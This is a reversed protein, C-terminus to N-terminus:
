WAGIWDLFLLAAALVAYLGAAWGIWSLAKGINYRTFLTPNPPPPAVPKRDFAPRGTRMRILDHDQEQREMYLDREYTM